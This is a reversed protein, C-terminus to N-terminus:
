DSRAFIVSHLHDLAGTLWQDAIVRVEPSFSSEVFDDVQSLKLDPRARLRVPIAGSALILAVPVDNGFYGVVREGSAAVDRAVSQPDDRLGRLHLSLDQPALM